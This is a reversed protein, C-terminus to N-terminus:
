FILLTGSLSATNSAIYISGSSWATATYWIDGSTSQKILLAGVPPKKLNHTATLETGTVAPTAIVQFDCWVNERDTGSTTTNLGGFEISNLASIMRVLLANLKPLSEPEWRYITELNVKPM